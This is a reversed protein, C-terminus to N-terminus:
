EIKTGCELCFKAGNALQTGCSPCHVQKVIKEGCIMCFKAGGALKEGCNPCVTEVGFSTGCSLCFKAKAPNEAQCNPCSITNSNSESVNGMPQMVQAGQMTNQALNSMANGITGGMGFGMGIGMGAGLFTSSSGENAAANGLVNFAQEQQYTYGERQRMRARAESEIDMQRASGEAELQKRKREIKMENVARLDEDPVNISHFSFNDLTLGFDSFHEILKEHIIRSFDSLRTSIKLIGVNENVMTNALLNPVYELIKARMFDVLENQTYDARTGVVKQLFKRAQVVAMAADIQEIHVGFLGFARVHINIEEEPDQVVIPAHTGWSLENMYATNIFYVTSHFASDGGTLAHAINRFPSFRSDGTELKIKCPGMFVSVQSQGMGDATMSNGATLNNTFIAMQSPAVILYSGNPFDEYQFKHVVLGAEQETEPEWKIVDVAFAGLIGKHQKEKPNDSQFLKM